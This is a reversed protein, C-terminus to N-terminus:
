GVREDLRPATRAEDVSATSMAAAALVHWLERPTRAQQVKTEPLRLDFAQELRMMLEMRALSDIGLVQELDDDLAPPPVATGRLEALLTRIVGLLTGATPTPRAVATPDAPCELRQDM